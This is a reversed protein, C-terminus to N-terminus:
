EATKYDAIFEITIKNNEKVKKTYIESFIMKTHNVSKLTTIVTNVAQEQISKILDTFIEVGSMAALGTVNDTTYEALKITHKVDGITLENDFDVKYGTQEINTQLKDALELAIPAMVKEDKTTNRITVHNKIHYLREMRDQIKSMM